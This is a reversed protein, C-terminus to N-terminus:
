GWRERLWGIEGDIINLALELGKIVGRDYPADLTQSMKCLNQEQVIREYLRECEDRRVLDRATDMVDFPNSM